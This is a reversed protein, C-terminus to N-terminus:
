AAAETDVAAGARLVEEIAQEPHNLDLRHIRMTERAAARGQGRSGDTLLRGCTCRWDGAIHRRPTHGSVPRDTSSLDGIRPDTFGWFPFGDPLGSRRMGNRLQEFFQLLAKVM